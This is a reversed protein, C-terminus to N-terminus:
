LSSRSAGSARHGPANVPRAALTNSAMTEVLAAGKWDGLQRVHFDRQVGDVGEIRIPVLEPVRTIAQGELLDVPDHRHAGPSFSAHSERSVERRTAKGRAVREELSLHPVVKGHEYRMGPPLQKSEDPGDRASVKKM